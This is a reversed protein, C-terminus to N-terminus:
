FEPVPSLWAPRCAASALGIPIQSPDILRTPLGGEIRLGPTATAIEKFPGGNEHKPKMDFTDTQSPGGPMWLLICSRIREPRDAVDDALAKLWSNGTFAVAGASAVRFWQRRSLFSGGLHRAHRIRPPIM